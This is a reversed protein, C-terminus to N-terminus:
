IVLDKPIDPETSGSNDMMDSEVQVIELEEDVQSDLLHNFYAEIEGACQEWTARSDTRTLSSSTQQNKVNEPFLKGIWGKFSGRKKNLKAVMDGQDDEIVQESNREKFYFM